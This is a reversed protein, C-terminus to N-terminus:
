RVTAAFLCALISSVTSQNWQPTSVITCSKNHDIIFCWCMWCMEECVNLLLHLVIMSQWCIWWSWMWIQDPARLLDRQFFTHATHKNSPLKTVIGRHGESGALDLTVTGTECKYAHAYTHTIQSSPSVAAYCSLVATIKSHNPRTHTHRTHTCNQKHAATVTWWHVCGCCCLIACQWMWLKIPAYVWDALICVCMCPCVCVCVWGQQWIAASFLSRLSCRLLWKGSSGNM